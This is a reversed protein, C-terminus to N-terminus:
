RAISFPDSAVSLNGRREDLEITTAVQYDGPPADAPIALQGKVSTLGPLGLAQATCARPPQNLRPMFSVSCLNYLASGLVNSKLELSITEGPAYSSRDTKLEYAPVAQCGASLGALALVATRLASM